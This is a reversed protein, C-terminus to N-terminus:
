DILKYHISDTAIFLRPIKIRTDELNFAVTIVESAPMEVPKKGYITEIQM